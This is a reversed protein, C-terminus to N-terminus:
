FNLERRRMRVTEKLLKAFWQSVDLSLLHGLRMPSRRTTQM